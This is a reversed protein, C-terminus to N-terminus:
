DDTEASDDNLEDVDINDTEPRDYACWFGCEDKVVEAEAYLESVDGVDDGFDSSCDFTRDVYNASLESSNITFEHDWLLDDGATDDEYVEILISDGSSFPEESGYVRIRVECYSEADGLIMDNRVTLWITADDVTDHETTTSPVAWAATALGFFTFVAAILGFRTNM